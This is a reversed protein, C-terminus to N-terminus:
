KNLRITTGTNSDTANQASVSQISIWGHVGTDPTAGSQVVLAAGGDNIRVNPSGSSSIVTRAGPNISIKGGNQCATLTLAVVSLALGRVLQSSPLM